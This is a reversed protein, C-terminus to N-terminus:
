VLFNGYEDYVSVTYDGDGNFKIKKVFMRDSSKTKATMTIVYKDGKYVEFKVKECGVGYLYNRIYLLRDNKFM